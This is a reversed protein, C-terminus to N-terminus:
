DENQKRERGEKGDGEIEQEGGWIFFERYKRINRLKDSKANSLNTQYKLKIRM